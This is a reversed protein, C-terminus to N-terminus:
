WGLHGAKAIVTAECDDPELAPLGHAVIPGTDIGADIRHVTVGINELKDM